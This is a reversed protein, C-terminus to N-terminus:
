FVKCFQTKERIKEITKWIKTLKLAHKQFIASFKLAKGLLLIENRGDFISGGFMQHVWEGFFDQM